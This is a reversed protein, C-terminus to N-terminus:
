KLNDEFCKFIGDIKGKLQDEPLSEFAKVKEDTKPDAKRGCALMKDHDAVIEDPKGECFRKVRQEPPGAVEAKCKDM